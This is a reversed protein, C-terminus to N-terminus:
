EMIDIKLIRKFDEHHTAMYNQQFGIFVSFIMRDMPYAAIGAALGIPHLPWWALRTRLVMLVAMAAAGIGVFTLRMASPGTLERMKKVTDRYPVKSGDGFMWSRFNLAGDRYAIHLTYSLSVVMAVAAALLLCTALAGSLPLVLLLSGLWLM